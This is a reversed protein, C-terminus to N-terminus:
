LPGTACARGGCEGIPVAGGGSVAVAVEASFGCATAVLSADAFASAADVFALLLEGFLSLGLGLSLLGRLFTCLNGRPM